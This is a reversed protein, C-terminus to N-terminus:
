AESPEHQAHTARYHLWSDYVMPVATNLFISGCIFIVTLFFGMVTLILLGGIFDSIGKVISM